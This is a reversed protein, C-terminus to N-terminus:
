TNKAGPFSILSLNKQKLVIRLFVTSRWFLFLFFKRYNERESLLKQCNPLESLLMRCLSPIAFQACFVLDIKQKQPTYQKYIECNVPDM